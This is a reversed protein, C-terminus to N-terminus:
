DDLIKGGCLTEVAKVVARLKKNYMVIYDHKEQLIHYNEYLDNTEARFSDFEKMLANFEECKAKYMAEWDPKSECTHESEPIECWPYRGSTIKEKHM